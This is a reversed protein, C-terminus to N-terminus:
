QVVPKQKLIKFYEEIMANYVETKHEIQFICADHITLVCIGKRMLALITRVIVESEIRMLNLGIGSNFFKSIPRHKIKFLDICNKAENYTIPMGLDKKASEMLAGVASGNTKANLTIIAAKKALDRSMGPISYPDDEKYDQKVVLHYLMRIQCGSYDLESVPSNNIILHKRIEKPINQWFAYLRGGNLFSGDNFIRKVMRDRITFYCGNPEEKISIRGTSHYKLLWDHMLPNEALVHSDIFGNINQQKYFNFIKTLERKMIPIRPDDTDKYAILTSTTINKGNKSSTINKIRLEIQEIKESRKIYKLSITNLKEHLRPRVEVLTMLRKTELQNYNGKIQKIFYYSELADSIRTVVKLEWFSRNEHCCYKKIYRNKDRSYALLLGANFSLAINHLKFILYKKCKDIEKKKCRITPEIIEIIENGIDIIEDPPDILNKDEFHVKPFELIKANEYSRM